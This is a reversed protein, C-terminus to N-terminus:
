QTSTFCACRGSHCARIVLVVSGALFCLSYKGYVHKACDLSPAVTHSTNLVVNDILLMLFIGLALNGPTPWLDAVCVPGGSSILISCCQTLHILMKVLFNVTISIVTFFFQLHDLFRVLSHILLSLTVNMCFVIKCCYFLISLYM